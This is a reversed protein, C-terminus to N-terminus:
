YTIVTKLNSFTQIGKEINQTPRLTYFIILTDRTTLTPVSKQSIIM